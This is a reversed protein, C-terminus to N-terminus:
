RAGEEAGSRRLLRLYAASSMLSLTLVLLAVASAVAPNQLQAFWKYTEGVLLPFNEGTLAQAVAFTQMGMITRLILAVQLNPKLLPLTVHRLRQWSSGGFVQGAEDYEKPIMQMGAVVIVLVLSTSRWIEALVVALLMTSTNQYSLWSFTGLGLDSLASNLFGRDTFISLWVLGAALDSVALPAAWLYFYFRSFRLKTQLLLGMGLALVFQLPIVTVILLLTNRVADWFHPEDVMRRWNDLGAGDPSRFAESIGQIMPWGFLLAMFLMSPLLLVYPTGRQWLPRSSGPTM